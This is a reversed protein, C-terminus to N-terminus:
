ALHLKYLTTYVDLADGRDELRPRLRVRVPHGAAVLGPHQQAAVHAAGVTREPASAVHERSRASVTSRRHSAFPGTPQRSEVSHPASPDSSPSHVSRMQVYPQARKRFDVEPIARLSAQSPEPKKKM